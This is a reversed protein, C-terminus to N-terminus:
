AVFCCCVFFADKETKKGDFYVENQIHSLEDCQKNVVSMNVLDDLGHCHVGNIVTTRRSAKQQAKKKANGLPAASYLLWSHASDRTPVSSSIIESAALVYHRIIAIWGTCLNGLLRDM